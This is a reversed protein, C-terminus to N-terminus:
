AREGVSLTARAPSFNFGGGPARTVAVITSTPPPVGNVDPQGNEDVITIPAISDKQPRATTRRDGSEARVLFVIAFTTALWFAVRGANSKKMRTVGKRRALM